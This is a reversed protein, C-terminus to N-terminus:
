VAGDKEEKRILSSKPRTEGHPRTYVERHARAILRPLNSPTNTNLAPPLPTPVTKRSAELWRAIEEPDFRVIGNPTCCPIKGQKAWAYLTSPSVQLEKALEDVTLLM